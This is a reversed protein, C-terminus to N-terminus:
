DARGLNMAAENLERELIRQNVERGEDGEADCARQQEFGALGFLRQKKRQHYKEDGEFYKEDCYHKEEAGISHRLQRPPADDDAVQERGGRHERVKEPLM